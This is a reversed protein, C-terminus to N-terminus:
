RNPVHLIQILGSCNGASESKGWEFTFHMWKPIFRKLIYLISVLFSAINALSLSFLLVDM